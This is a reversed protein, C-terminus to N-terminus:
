IKRYHGTSVFSPPCAKGVIITKKPASGSGVDSNQMWETIESPSLVGTEDTESIYIRLDDYLGTVFSTKNGGLVLAVGSPVDGMNLSVTAGAKLADTSTASYYTVNDQSKTGDYTIAIFIWTNLEL